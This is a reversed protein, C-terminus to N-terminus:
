FSRRRFLFWGLGSVTLLLVSSPEPIGSIKAIFIDADGFRSEGLRGWTYGTVYAEGGSGLALGFVQEEGSSALYTTGLLDGNANYQTVFADLGGANTHEGITGASYGAIWINGASDVDLANAIEVGSGGFLRTWLVNGTNDLKMVFADASGQAVEGGLGGGTYGALYINGSTDVKICNAVDNLNTGLQKQLTVNGNTDYRSFFIDGSGANTGALSSRTSGAVYANGNVDFAASMGSDSSATASAKTWIQAGASNRKSLFADEQGLNSNGDLSGTSAGAVLLNSGNGALGNIADSASTGFRNASIALGTIRGFRILAADNGGLSSQGFLTASNTYGGVFVHFSGVLAVSLGLDIGSGGHQAKVIMSGDSSFCSLLIDYSGANEAAFNGLTDGAVWIQEDEDVIIARGFDAKASGLQTLWQVTLQAHSHASLWCIVMPFVIMWRGLSM